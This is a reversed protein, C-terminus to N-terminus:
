KPQHFCAYTLICIIALVTLFNLVSLNFYSKYSKFFLFPLFVINMLIIWFYSSQDVMKSFIRLQYQNQFIQFNMTLSQHIIIAYCVITLIINLLSLMLVYINKKGYM